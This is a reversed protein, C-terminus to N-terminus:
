TVNVLTQRVSDTEASYKVRAVRFMQWSAGSPKTKELMSLFREHQTQNHEGAKYLTKGDSAIAAYRVTDLINGAIM